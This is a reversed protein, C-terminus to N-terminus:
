KPHFVGLVSQTLLDDYVSKSDPLAPKQTHPLIGYVYVVRCRFGWFNSWFAEGIQNGHCGAQPCYM